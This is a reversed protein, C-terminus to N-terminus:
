RAFPVRTEGNLSYSTWGTVMTLWFVDQRAKLWADADRELGGADAGAVPIRGIGIGVSVGKNGM